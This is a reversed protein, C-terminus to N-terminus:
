EWDADFFGADRMESYYANDLLLDEEQFFDALFTIYLFPLYLTHYCIGIFSYLWIGFGVSSVGLACAFLGTAHVMFMIVAYNYFAPRPPLKDRWKSYHVFLIYGYTCTLLLEDFTRMGWKGGHTTEGDMFLPVGFGFVIAKLLIDVGVILGSIMFTHALTELGTAYNEQLLFAILSIELCLSGSETLLSLLNWSVEKGSTCQWAQLSCWALNLVASLWLLLYYAIMVHSRRHSLKKVNKNLYFGLYVIFLAAPISLAATYVLGHCNGQNYDSQNVSQLGTDTIASIPTLTHHSRGGHNHHCNHLYTSIEKKVYVGFEDDLDLNM